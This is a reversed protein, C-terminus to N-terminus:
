YASHKQLSEKRILLYLRLSRRSMKKIRIHLFSVMQLLYKNFVAAERRLNLSAATKKYNKKPLVSLAQKQVKGLLALEIRLSERLQPCVYSKVKGRLETMFHEQSKM